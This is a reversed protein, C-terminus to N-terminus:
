AGIMVNVSQLEDIFDQLKAREISLMWDGCTIDVTSTHTGAVYECGTSTGRMTLTRSTVVLPNDPKKVAEPLGTPVAIARANRGGVHYKDLGAAACIKSISGMSVGTEEHIERHIKGHAYMDVIRAKTEEDIRKM